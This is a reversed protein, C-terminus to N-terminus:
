ACHKRVEHVIKLVAQACGTAKQATEHDYFEFPSGTPYADAYRPPIYNVLIDGNWLIPM